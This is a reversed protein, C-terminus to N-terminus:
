VSADKFSDVTSPIKNGGVMKSAQIATTMFKSNSRLGATGDAQYGAPIDDHGTTPDPIVNAHISTPNSRLPELGSHQYLAGNDNAM